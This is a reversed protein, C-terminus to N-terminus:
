KKVVVIENNGILNAILSFTSGFSAYIRRANALILMEYLAFRIGERSKRDAAGSAESLINEPYKDKLQELIAMDDTAVYIKREPNQAVLVKVKEFFLETPSNKIANENDTRRIHMAIYEGNKRKFAELKDSIDKNFRIGDLSVKGYFEYYAEVYHKDKAPNNVIDKLSKWDSIDNKGQETPLQVNKVSKRFINYGLTHFFKKLVRHLKFEKLLKKYSEKEFHITKVECPLPMGAFVDEYECGCENNNRWLLVIRDVNCDRALNFGSSMALIRNGLGGGPELILTKKGM